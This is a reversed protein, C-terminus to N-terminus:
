GRANVSPLRLAAVRAGVLEALAVSVLEGVGMDATLKSVPHLIM